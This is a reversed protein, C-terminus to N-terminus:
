LNISWFIISRMVFKQCSWLKCRKPQGSKFFARKENCALYLSSHAIIRMFLYVLSLLWIFDINILSM